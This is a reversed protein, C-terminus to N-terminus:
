RLLILMTKPDILGTVAAPPIYLRAPRGAPADYKIPRDEGDRRPVRPREPKVRCYHADNGAADHYPFVLCAGGPLPTRRNLLEASTYALRNVAAAAALIDSKVLDDIIWAAAPDSTWAGGPAVPRIGCKLRTLDDPLTKM